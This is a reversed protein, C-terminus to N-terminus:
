GKRLHYYAPVRVEKVSNPRFRWKMFAAVLQADLVPHTTSQLTEVKAVTGDSRVTLLFVGLMLHRLVSSMGPAWRERLILPKLEEPSLTKGQPTTGALVSLTIAEAAAVPKVL